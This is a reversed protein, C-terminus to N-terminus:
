RKYKRPMRKPLRSERWLSIVGIMLLVFAYTAFNRILEASPKFLLMISIAALLILTLSFTTRSSIRTVLAVAGYLLVLVLGIVLNDAFFGGTMGALLLLPLQLKQWTKHEKPQSKPAFYVRRKAPPLTQPPNTIAARPQVGDIFAKNNM